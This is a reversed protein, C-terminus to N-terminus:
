SLYTRTTQRSYLPLTAPISQFKCSDAFHTSNRPKDRITGQVIYNPGSCPSSPKGPFNVRLVGVKGYAADAPVATGEIFTQKDGRQCTNNVYLSGDDQHTSFYNACGIYRSASALTCQYRVTGLHMQMGGHFAGADWRGSVM